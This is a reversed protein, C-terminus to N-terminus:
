RRVLSPEKQQHEWADLQKLVNKLPPFDRLFHKNLSTRLVNFAEPTDLDKVHSVESKVKDAAKMLNGLRYINGDGRKELFMDYQTIKSMLLAMFVSVTAKGDKTLVAVQDLGQKFRAVIREASM